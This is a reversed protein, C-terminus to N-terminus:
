RGWKTMVITTGKGVISEIHFDDMLRRAGPLGLGLSKSTSFGDQMAREVDAIGPGQDRATVQLGRRANKEVVELAVEGRKAYVVINRAIESIATAILALEGSSFGLPTAMARGERRAVVIDTEHAIIVLRHSASTM